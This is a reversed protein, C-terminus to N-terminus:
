GGSRRGRRALLVGPGAPRLREAARWPDHQAPHRRPQQHTHSPEREQSSQTHMITSLWFRDRLMPTLSFIFRCSVLSLMKCHRPLLRPHINPYATRWGYPSFVKNKDGLRPTQRTLLISIYCLISSHSYESIYLRNEVSGHRVVAKTITCLICQNPQSSSVLTNEM